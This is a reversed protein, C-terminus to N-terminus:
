RPATERGRDDRTRDDRLAAPRPLQAAPRQYEAVVPATYIAPPAHGASAAPM